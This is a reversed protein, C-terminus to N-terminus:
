VPLNKNYMDEAAADKVRETATQKMTDALLAYVTTWAQETEPTFAAGLEQELAWLLAAGVTDYDASQVGYEAHHRGMEQLASKIEALDHLSNLVVQLTTTLKLGQKAMDGKFLARLSPNLEFLRRYFLNAFQDAIPVIHRFSRQVLQKQYANM